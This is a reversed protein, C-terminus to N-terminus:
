ACEEGDRGLEIWVLPLIFDIVALRGNNTLSRKIEQLFRQKDEVEHIVNVSLAFDVVQPALKFNYEESKVTQINDLNSDEAKSRVEALMEESIDVAYVLNTDAVIKAAPITFYGIGCGIDAMSDQSTLGLQQLTKTPPLISRRWASDLKEKNAANFKHAM